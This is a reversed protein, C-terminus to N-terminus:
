FSYFTATFFDLHMKEEMRTANKQISQDNEDIYYVENRQEHNSM